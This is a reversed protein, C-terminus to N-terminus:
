TDPTETLHAGIRWLTVSAFVAAVLGPWFVENPLHGAGVTFFLSVFTAIPVFGLGILAHGVRSRTTTLNFLM